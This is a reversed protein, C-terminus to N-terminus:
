AAFCGEKETASNFGLSIGVRPRLSSAIAIRKVKLRLESVVCLPWKSFMQLSTRLNSSLRLKSPELDRSDGQITYRMGEQARLLANQLCTRSRILTGRM